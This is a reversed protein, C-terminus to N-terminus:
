FITQSLINVIINTLKNAFFNLFLEFEFMNTFLECLQSSLEMLNDLVCKM